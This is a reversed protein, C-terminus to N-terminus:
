RGNGAAQRAEELLEGVNYPFDGNFSTRVPTGEVPCETLLRKIEERPVDPTFVISLPREATPDAVWSFGLERARRAYDLVAQKDEASANKQEDAPNFGPSQSFDPNERECAAYEDQKDDYPSGALGSADNVQVYDFSTGDVYGEGGFVAVNPYLEPDAVTAMVPEGDPGDVLQDQVPNGAADVWRLGANDGNVVRADIGKSVLCAVFRKAVPDEEPGGSYETQSSATDAQTADDGNKGTAGSTSCASLTTMMASAALLAITERMLKSITIM